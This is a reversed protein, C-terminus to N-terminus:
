KDSFIQTAASLWSCFFLKFKIDERIVNILKRQKNQYHQQKYHAYAQVVHAYIM